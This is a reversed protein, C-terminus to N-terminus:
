IYIYYNIGFLIFDGRTNITRKPSSTKNGSNDLGGNSVPYSRGEQHIWEVSITYSDLLPVEAGFLFHWGTSSTSYRDRMNGGWLPNSQTIKLYSLHYTPGAGFYFYTREKMPLLFGFSIPFSAQYTSIRIVNKQGSSDTYSGKVGSGPKAFYGGVRFLLYNFHYRLNYGMVYAYPVEIQNMKAGPDGQKSSEMFKNYENIEKEMNNPDYTMGSNIGISFEGIAYSTRTFLFVATLMASIFIIKKLGTM